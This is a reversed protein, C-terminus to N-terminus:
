PECNVLVANVSTSLRSPTSWSLLFDLAPQQMAVILDAKRGMIETYRLLLLDRMENRLAPDGQTNMNLHEVMIDESALGAAAMAAVYTRTYSEVGARGYDYANLFLVRQGQHPSAAAPASAPLAACPAAVCFALLLARCCRRVAARGQGGGPVERM